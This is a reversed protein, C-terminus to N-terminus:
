PRIQSARILLHERLLGDLIKPPVRFNTAKLNNFVTQLDSILGANAADFLVAATRANPIKWAIAVDRGKKEDILLLDAKLERALNIAASEGLDLNKIFEIKSPARTALWIPPKAIFAQVEPPRKSNALEIAVQPPIVVSGYLRPLIDIHSIKLLAIFPSSDAVVLM